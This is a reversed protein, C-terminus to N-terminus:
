NPGSLGRWYPVIGMPFWSLHGLSNICAHFGLVWPAPLLILLEVDSEATYQIQFLLGKRLSFLVFCTNRQPPWSWTNSHTLFCDCIIWYGAWTHFLPSNGWHDPYGQDLLVMPLTLAKGSSLLDQRCGAAQLEQGHLWTQGDLSWWWM